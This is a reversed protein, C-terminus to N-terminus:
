RYRTDRKLLYNIVEIVENQQGYGISYCGWDDKHPWINFIHGNPLKIICQKYEEDYENGEILKKTIKVM